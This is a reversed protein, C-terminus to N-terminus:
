FPYELNWYKQLIFQKFCLQKLINEKTFINNYADYVVDLHVLYLWITEENLYENVKFPRYTFWIDSTAM